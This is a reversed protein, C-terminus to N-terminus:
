IYLLFRDQPNNKCYNKGEGDEIKLFLVFRFLLCILGLAHLFFSIIFIITLSFFSISGLFVIFFILSVLISEKFLYSYFFVFVLILFLFTSM